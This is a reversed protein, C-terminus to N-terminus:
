KIDRLPGASYFRLMFDWEQGERGTSPICVYKGPKLTFRFSTQTNGQYLNNESPIGEEQLVLLDTSETELVKFFHVKQIFFIDICIYCIFLDLKLSFLFFCLRKKVRKFYFFLFIASERPIM